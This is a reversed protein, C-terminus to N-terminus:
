PGCPACAWRPAARAGPAPEGAPHPEPDKPRHRLPGGWDARGDDRGTLGLRPALRDGLPQRRAPLGLWLTHPHDLPTPELPRVFEVRGEVVVAACPATM